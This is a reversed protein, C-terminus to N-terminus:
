RGEVILDDRRDKAWSVQDHGLYKPRDKGYSVTHLRNPDIGLRALYQKAALARHEGLALNYQETGREDCNGEIRLQRAPQRGLQEAAKQLKQLDQDSLLASDYNFYLAGPTTARVAKAGPSGAKSVFTQAARPAPRALLAPNQLVPKTHACGALMMLATGTGVFLSRARM